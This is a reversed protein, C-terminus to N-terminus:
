VAVPVRSVNLRGNIQIIHEIRIFERINKLSSVSFLIISSSHKTNPVKVFANEWPCSGLHCNGLHCSGLHAIEWAAVEWINMKGFSLKGLPFKGM